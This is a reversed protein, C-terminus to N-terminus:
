SATSAYEVAAEVVDRPIRELDLVEGGANRIAQALKTAWVDEWVILLASSNPTLVEAVADLDEANVLDGIATQLSQFAAGADSDVDEIEFAAVKGSADKIVFALDLVRVTGSEVLEALAPAIEGHFKNDPFSVVM